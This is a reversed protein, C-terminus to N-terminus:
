NNETYQVNIEWVDAYDDSPTFGILIASMSTSTLSIYGEEQEISMDSDIITWEAEGAYYDSYFDFLDQPDDNSVYVRFQGTESDGGDVLVSEPYRPIADIDDLSIIDESPIDNPDTSSESEIRVIIIDTANDYSNSPQIIVNAKYTDNIIEIQGGNDSEVFAYDIVSWTTSDQLKTLYYNYVTESTEQTVYTREQEVDGDYAEILISDPYRQLNDLDPFGTLDEEPFGNSGSGSDGNSESLQSGIYRITDKLVEHIELNDDNFAALLDVLEERTSPPEEVSYGLATFDALAMPETFVQQGNNKYILDLVPVGDTITVTSEQLDITPVDITLGYDTLEDLPYTGDTLKTLDSLSNLYYASTNIVSMMYVEETLEFADKADDITTIEAGESMTMDFHMDNINQVPLIENFQAIFEQLQFDIQMSDSDAPTHVIEMAVGDSEEVMTLMNQYEPTDIMSDYPLMDQEIEAILLMNYIDKFMDEFLTKVAESEVLVHTLIDNDNIIEADITLSELSTFYTLDYYTKMNELEAVILEMTDENLSTDAFESQITSFLVNSFEDQLAAPIMIHVFDSDFAFLERYNVDQETELTDIIFGVDVYAEIYTDTKYVLMHISIDEEEISNPLSMTLITETLTSQNNDIRQEFDVVVTESDGTENAVDMSFEGNFTMTDSTELTTLVSEMHGFDNDFAAMAEEVPSDQIESYVAELTIDETATFTYPNDSSLVTETSDQWQTFEYGDVTSATVTVETDKDVINDPDIDITATDTTSNVTIEVQEGNDGNTPGDSDTLDTDCAAMIFVGVLITFLSFLRKM